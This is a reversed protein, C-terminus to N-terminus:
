AHTNNGTQLFHLIEGAALRTGGKRPALYDQVQEIVQQRSEESDLQALLAACLENEDHVERVLGADVIDRSVWAFNSWYPGILPRLGFVLPELFNQGGLNLLSGGIFATKALSYAGALEGFVDWVVVTGPPCATSTESRRVAPIKRDALASLWHGAREIHKPFVGILIDQKTKLLTVIVNFIREEEERRISGLLVFPTDPGLLSSIASPPTGPIPPQIRDFKINNMLGVREAGMVHAFRKGDEPSIAWVRDPALQRFLWRLRSYSGFSKNSIRGNVLLVPISRSKAQWLFGPWLETEVIVCLRPRFRDFAKAMVRPADLPFCCVEITLPSSPPLQRCGKRLSDIGQQTGSTALVRLSRSAPLRSAIEALLM